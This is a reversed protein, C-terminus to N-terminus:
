ELMVEPLSGPKALHTIAMSELPELVVAVAVAVPSTRPDPEETAVAQAVVPLVVPVAVIAQFGESDVTVEPLVPSDLLHHLEVLSEM